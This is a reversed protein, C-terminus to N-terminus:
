GLMALIQEKPRAGIAQNVIKGNKMVVLMPISSVGFAAALEPENDVNIKGVLYQPNEEAIEDVLPSVMRCPGCWDAYFDLLVPKESNKVSDFNNKNVSLVSM